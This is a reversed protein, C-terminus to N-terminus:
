DALSDFMGVYADGIIAAAREALVRRSIYWSRDFWPHAKRAHGSTKGGGWAPGRRRPRDLGHEHRYDKDLIPLTGDARRHSRNFEPGSGGEVYVGYQLYRFTFTAEIGSVATGGSAISNLLAGTDIGRSLALRDKWIQVMTREWGESLDRFRDAATDAPNNNPGTM